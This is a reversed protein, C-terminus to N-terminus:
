RISNLYEARASADTKFVGQLSTTTTNSEEKKVGRMCMCLHKAKLTVAVGRPNLERQLREAVQMTIREQNQLKGAYLDLTRPLKSLGVIKKDPIYAIHGVGFFPFLHHECMSYFPIDKVIVMEDTGEADFTTFNFPKPNLLEQMAKVYRRPTDLLGERSTDEGFLALLERVLEEAKRNIPSEM